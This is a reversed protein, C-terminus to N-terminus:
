RVILLGVANLGALWLLPASLALRKLWRGPPLAYLGGTFLLAGPLLALGLYRGQAQFAIAINFQLFGAILTASVALMIAVPQWALRAVRRRLLPRVILLWLLALGSLALLALSISRAQVYVDESFHRTMWGFTGWTSMWTSNLFDAVDDPSTPVLHRPWGAYMRLMDRNGSPEGYTILNRVLWWSTVLGAAGGAGVAMRLGRRLRAGWQPRRRGLQFIRFLIVLALGPALASATLKTLVALGLLAGARLMWRDYNPDRLGRFWVYFSAAGLCHVMSDNAATANNFCFQPLLAVVGAAAVAWMPARPALQRTAAWIFYVTGAGFLAAVLRSIYLVPQPNPPVLHAAIGAVLYYLPPQASEYPLLMYTDQIGRSRAYDVTAPDGPTGVLSWPPTTVFVFHIEHLVLQTRFTMIAKLHAPEDPADLPQVAAVWLLNLWFSVLALALGRQHTFRRWAGRLRAWRGARAQPAPAPLHGNHQTRTPL